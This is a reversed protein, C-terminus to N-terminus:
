RYVVRSFGRRGGPCPPGSPAPFRRPRRGFGGSPDDAPELGAVLLDLLDPAPDALGDAPDPRGFAPAGDFDQLGNGSDAGGDQGDDDGFGEVADAPGVQAGESAVEADSGDRFPGSALDADPSPEGRVGPERVGGVVPCHGRDLPVGGALRFVAREPLAAVVM